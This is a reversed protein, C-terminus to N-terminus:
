APPASAACCCSLEGGGLTPFLQDLPLSRLDDLGYGLLQM